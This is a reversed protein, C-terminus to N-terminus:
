EVFVFAMDLVLGYHLLSKTMRHDGAGRDLFVLKRKSGVTEGIRSVELPWDTFDERASFNKM